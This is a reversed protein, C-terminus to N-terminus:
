ESDTSFKLLMLVGLARLNDSAFWVSFLKREGKKVPKREGKLTDLLDHLGLDGKIMLEQHRVTTLVGSNRDSCEIRMAREHNKVDSFQIETHGESRFEETNGTSTLQSTRVAEVELGDMIKQPTITEVSSPPPPPSASSLLTQLDRQEGAKSWAAMGDKWVLTHSTLTGERKLQVLQEAGLPGKQEDNILVWYATEIYQIPLHKEATVSSSILSAYETLAYCIAETKTEGIGTLIIRGKAPDYGMRLGKRDLFDGIKEEVSAFDDADVQGLGGFLAFCMCLGTLVRPM